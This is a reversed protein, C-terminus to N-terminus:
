FSFQVQNLNVQILLKKDVVVVVGLSVGLGM